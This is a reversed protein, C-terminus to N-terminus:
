GCRRGFGGQRGRDRRAVIRQHNQRAKQGRRRQERGNTRGASRKQTKRPDWKIKKHWGGTALENVVAAELPTRFTKRRPNRPSNLPYSIRQRTLSPWTLIASIVRLSKASIAGFAPKTVTPE